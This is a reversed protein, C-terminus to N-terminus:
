PLQPPLTQRQELALPLSQLTIEERWSFQFLGGRLVRAKKQERKM